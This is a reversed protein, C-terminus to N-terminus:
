NVCSNNIYLFYPNFYSISKINNFAKEISTSLHAGIVSLFKRNMLLISREFIFFFKRGNENESKIKSFLFFEDHIFLFKM